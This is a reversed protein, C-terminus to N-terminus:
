KSSDNTVISFILSNIEEHSAVFSNLEELTLKEIKQLEKESYGLGLDNYFESFSRSLRQSLTEVRLPESGLLFLKAQSLEDKTVGNKVFVSIVEQVIKIAEDKSETKTQLYGSFSSSTKGLNFKGYASYALGRKVRIEEMLRSGFGGAGLIFGMVKAKYAEDDAAKLYFPSGFYIYAQESKKVQTVGEKSKSVNYFPLEKKTGVELNELLSKVLNKADNKTIDGGVVVIVSSVDIQNKIFGDVKDLTINEISQLTGIHNRGLPTDKFMLENLKTSAIYDFDSEQNLITGKTQAFVKEYVDNSLNPEELLKGLLSAGFSFEDKLSVLSFTMTELSAGVDLSIAREDLAKSFALSGMKLTGENLVKASFRALGIDEKEAISGAGVFVLQLSVIPLNKSQEFIVPVQINKVDIYFVEKSMLVGQLFILGFIFKVM